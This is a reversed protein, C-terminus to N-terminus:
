QPENLFYENQAQLSFFLEFQAPWSAGLILEYAVHVDGNKQIM